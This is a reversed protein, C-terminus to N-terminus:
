SLSFQSFDICGLRYQVYQDKSYSGRDGECDKRMKLPLCALSGPLRLLGVGIGSCQESVLSVGPLALSRVFSIRQPLLTGVM